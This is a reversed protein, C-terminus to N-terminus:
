DREKLQCKRFFHLWFEWVSQVNGVAYGFRLFLVAVLITFISQLLVPTTGFRGDEIKEQM